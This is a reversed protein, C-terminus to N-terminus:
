TGERCNAVTSDGLFEIRRTNCAMAGISIAVALKRNSCWWWGMSDSLRRVYGVGWSGGLWTHDACFAARMNLTLRVEATMHLPMLRVCLHKPALELAALVAALAFVLHHLM